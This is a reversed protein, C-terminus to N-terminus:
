VVADEDEAASIAVAAAAASDLFRACYDRM